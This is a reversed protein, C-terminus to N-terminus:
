GTLSNQMTSIDKRAVPVERAVNDGDAARQRHALDRSALSKTSTSPSSTATGHTFLALAHQMEHCIDVCIVLM